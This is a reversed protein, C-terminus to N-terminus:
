PKAEERPEDPWVGVHDDELRLRVRHKLELAEVHSRPLQLRGARDLVAFEEAIIRHDGEETQETRRFTETSTRGDRISVTRYVQEAVHGDHTVVVITTGFEANVQRLLGFVEASTASDLEGTPEDALLVAPKNALAM